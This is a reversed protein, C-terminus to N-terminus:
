NEYGLYDLVKRWEPDEKYQLATSYSALESFKEYAKKTNKKDDLARYTKALCAQAEPDAFHIKEAGKFAELARTFENSNYYSNGLKYYAKLNFRDLSIVKQFDRAARSYNGLSYLLDGRADYMTFNNPNMEIIASLAEYQSDTDGKGASAQAAKMYYKLAEDELYQGKLCRAKGLLAPIDDSRQRLVSDYYSMAEEYRGAAENEQAIRSPTKEEV